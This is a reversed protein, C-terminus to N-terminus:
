ERKTDSEPETQEAAKGATIWADIESVKFKWLKGLKHAPMQKREIWKYITDRNVGLHAAIEEVSLWREQEQMTEQEPPWRFAPEVTELRPQIYCPADTCVLWFCVPDSLVPIFM